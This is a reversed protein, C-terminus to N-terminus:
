IVHLKNHQTFQGMPLSVQRTVTVIFSINYTMYLILTVSSYPFYLRTSNPLHSHLCCKYLQFRHLIFIHLHWSQEVSVKSGMAITQSPITQGQEGKGWERYGMTKETVCCMHCSVVSTTHTYPSHKLLLPPWTVYPLLPVNSVKVVNNTYQKTNLVSNLLTCYETCQKTCQQYQITKVIYLAIGFLRRSKCVCQLACKDWRDLIPWHMSM